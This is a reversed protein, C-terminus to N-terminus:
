IIIEVHLLVTNRYFTPTKVYCLVIYYEGHIFPIM